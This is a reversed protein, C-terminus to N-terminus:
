CCDFCSCWQFSAYRCDRHENNDLQLLMLNDINVSLNKAYVSDLALEADMFSVTQGLKQAEASAHLAVTTKCYSELGDNRDIRSISM